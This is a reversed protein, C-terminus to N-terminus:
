PLSIPNGDNRDVLNKFTNVDISESLFQVSGDGFLVNAGGTHVSQIPTGCRQDGMTGFHFQRRGIPWVVTTTNYCRMCNNNRTVTGTGKCGTLSGPGRPQTTYSTGMFAGRSDSSRIDNYIPDAQPPNAFDSQEGVVITNSTGDTISAIPNGERPTVRLGLVGGDSVVGNRATTDASPHRDSGLIATYTPEYARYQATNIVNWEPLPSAPCRMLPFVAGEYVPKNVAGTDAFWFTNNVGAQNNFTTKQYVNNQEVYPLTYVWWTPGHM